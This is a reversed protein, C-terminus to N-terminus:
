YKTREDGVNDAKEEETVIKMNGVQSELLSDENQQEKGNRPSREKEPLVDRSIYFSLFSSIALLHTFLGFSHKQTSCRQYPSEHGYIM